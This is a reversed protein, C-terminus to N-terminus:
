KDQSIPAQRTKPAPESLSDQAAVPATVESRAENVRSQALQFYTDDVEFGVFRRNNRVAAV